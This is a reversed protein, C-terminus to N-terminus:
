SHDPRLGIYESVFGNSTAAVLAPSGDGGKLIADNFDEVAKGFWMRIVLFSTFGIMFGLLGIWATARHVGPKDMAAGLKEGLKSRASTLTFLFFFIITFALSVAIFAPTTTTPANVVSPASSPLVSLDLCSLILLSSELPPRSRVCWLSPVSYGIPLYRERRQKITLM